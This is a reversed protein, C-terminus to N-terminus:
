KLYTKIIGHLTYFIFYYSSKLVSLGEIERYVIWQYKSAKLKNASISKGRLRYKGLVTDIGYGHPIKKLIKLWLAYDQRKDLVPMYVKGLLQSDYVATLCGVSCTKLLDKYSVKEPVTIRGVDEGSENVKGYNAFTFAYSDELMFKIQVELKDPVWLDDSDLFAIFRGTSNEIALNRTLAPGMKSHNVLLKIRPDKKKYERVIGPGQDDSADDVIIMEWNQYSQALVSDITEAIYSASNHMPTIISVKHTM